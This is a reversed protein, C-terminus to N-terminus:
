IGYKLIDAAAAKTNGPTDLLGADLAKHAEQVAQIDFGEPKLFM